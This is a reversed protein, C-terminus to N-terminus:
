QNLIFLKTVFFHRATVRETVQGSIQLFDIDVVPIVVDLQLQYTVM